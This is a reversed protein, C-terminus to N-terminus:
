INQMGFIPQVRVLSESMTEWAYTDISPEVDMEELQLLLDTFCQMSYSIMDKLTDEVEKDPDGFECPANRMLSLWAKNAAAAEVISRSSDIPTLVQALVTWRMEIVCCVFFYGSLPRGRSIYRSLFPQISNITEEEQTYHQVIDMLLSNLRDLVESVCLSSLQTSLKQWQKSTWPFPTSIIARYLGHMSPALQTLIDVAIISDSSSLIFAESITCTGTLIRKVTRSIFSFIANAAAEGYQRHTSSIRLLASVTAFV